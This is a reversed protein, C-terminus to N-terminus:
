AGIMSVLSLYYKQKGARKKFYRDLTPHASDLNRINFHNISLYKSKLHFSVHPLLSADPAVDGGHLPAGAAVAFVAPLLHTGPGGPYLRVKGPTLGGGADLKPGSM